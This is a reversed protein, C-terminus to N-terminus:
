GARRFTKCYSHLCTTPKPIRYYRGCIWLKQETHNTTNYIYALLTRRDSSWLYNLCYGSTLRLPMDSKL